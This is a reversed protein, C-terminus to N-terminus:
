RSALSCVGQRLPGSKMQTVKSMDIRRIMLQLTRPRISQPLRLFATDIDAESTFYDALDYEFKGESHRPNDRHWAAAAAASENTYPVGVFEYIRRIAALPRRCSGPLERRDRRERGGQTSLAPLKRDFPVHDAAVSRPDTSSQRIRAVQQQTIDVLKFMSGVSSRPHRHTM